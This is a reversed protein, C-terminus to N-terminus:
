GTERGETKKKMPCNQALHGPKQCILCAKKARLKEYEARTLARRSATGLETPEPGGSGSAGTDGNSKMLMPSRQFQGWKQKPPAVKCADHGAVHTIVADVCEAYMAMEHFHAPGKLEM